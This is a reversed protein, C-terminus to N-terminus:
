FPLTLGVSFVNNTYDYYADNSANTIYEYGLMLTLPFDPWRKEFVASFIGHADSRREATQLGALDYAALLPYDREERDYRLRM